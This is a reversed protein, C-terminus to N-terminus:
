QTASEWLLGTGPTTAASNGNVWATFNAFDAGNTAASFPNTAGTVKAMFGEAWARNVQFPEVQTSPATTLNLTQDNGYHKGAM